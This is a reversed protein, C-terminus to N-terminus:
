LWINESFRNLYVICCLPKSVTSRQASNQHKGGCLLPRGGCRPQWCTKWKRRRSSRRHGCCCGSTAGCSCSRMPGSGSPRAGGAWRDHNTHSATPIVFWEGLINKYFHPWFVWLLQLYSWLWLLACNIWLYSDWHRYRGRKMKSLLAHNCWSM